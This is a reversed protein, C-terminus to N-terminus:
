GEVAEPYHRRIARKTPKGRLARLPCWRLLGFAVEMVGVVRLLNAHKNDGTAKSAAAIFAVGAAIRLLMGLWGVNKWCFKWELEDGKSKKGV